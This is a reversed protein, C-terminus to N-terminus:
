SKLRFRLVAATGVGLFLLLVIGQTVAFPPESQTPALEKLAPVKQFLQAILVFTNLYLAVLATIVYVKRWGGVLHRLYLAYGAAGLVLISLIGVAVAPTFGNLPFFFGTASTLFTTTLFFATCRKLPNSALMGGLVIFGAGLAAISILIHILTFLPLTM